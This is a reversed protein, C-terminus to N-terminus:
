PMLHADGPAQPPMKIALLKFEGSSARSGAHVTGKPIVILDGARIEQQHDGLWFAGSGSIVYDLEDSDNHMHKPVDGTQVALTGQPLTVLTRSRLTGFNPVMDGLDASTIAALDIIQPQLATAQAQAPPTNRAALLGALFAAAIAASFLMRRMM